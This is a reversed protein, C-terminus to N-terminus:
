LVESMINIAKATKIREKIFPMDRCYITNYKGYTTLEILSRTFPDYNFPRFGKSLLLDHIMSEDFGYRGGSSNLEIIIAKLSLQEMTNKMGKLVETEYGEVDIKILCPQHGSLSDISIVPLSQKNALSEYTAIVHNTTDENISFTVSGEAAGAGCNLLTVKDQLSNLSINKNLISYTTNVPELSISKAKCVGSALLTYAGANAGIDFFTDDPRLLHLLFVMDNFEHLGTYINGTIGTLGKRAYFKLPSIFTKVM